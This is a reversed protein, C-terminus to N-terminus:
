LYRNIMNIITNSHIIVHIHNLRVGGYTGHITKLCFPISYIADVMFHPRYVCLQEMYQISEAHNFLQGAKSNGKTIQAMWKVLKDSGQLRYMRYDGVQKDLREAPGAVYHHVEENSSLHRAGAAGNALM